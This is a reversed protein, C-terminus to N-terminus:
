CENLKLALIKDTNFNGSRLRKTLMKRFFTKYIIQSSEKYAIANDLPRKGGKSACHHFFSRPVRGCYSCFFILLCIRVFLCRFQSKFCNGTGKKVKQPFCSFQCMEMFISLNSMSILVYLHM